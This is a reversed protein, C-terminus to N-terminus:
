ACSRPIRTKMSPARRDFAAAVSSRGSRAKVVSAADVDDGEAARLVTRQTRLRDQHEVGRGGVPQDIQALM